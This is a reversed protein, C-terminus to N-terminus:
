QNKSSRLVLEYALLWENMAERSELLVLQKGPFRQFLELLIPHYATRFDHVMKLLEPDEKTEIWPLDDRKKGIRRLVGERCVDEPLDLFFIHDCARMRMEYTRRYNGDIIWEEQQLIGNLAQDFAERSIHTGDEKWWINDLHYLPLNSLAHLKKAFTSKGSGPCGLILAKRIPKEPDYLDIWYRRAVSGDPATVENELVGGNCLITKASGINNRDCAMMVRLMGRKRCEELALHVLATGYGKRRESPRIGDGIHGINYLLVDNLHHRIDVAGILRDRTEDLLFFVSDPVRRDAEANNELHSLYYDFDHYDHRFIAKPAGNTHNEEQDKKWEDIMDALRDRDDATLRILRLGTTDTM